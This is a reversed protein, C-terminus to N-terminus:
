PFVLSVPILVVVIGNTAISAYEALAIEYEEAPLLVKRAKQLTNLYAANSSM